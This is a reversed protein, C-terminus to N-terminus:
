SVSIILQTYNNSLVDHHCNSNHLNLTQIESVLTHWKVKDYMQSYNNTDIVYLFVLAIRIKNKNKNKEMKQKVELSLIVSVM